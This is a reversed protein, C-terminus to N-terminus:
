PNRNTQRAPSFYSTCVGPMQRTKVMFSLESLGHFDIGVLYDTRACNESEHDPHREGGRRQLDRPFERDDNGILIRLTNLRPECVGGGLEGIVDFLRRAHFQGDPRSRLRFADWPRNEDARRKRDLRSEGNRRAVPLRHFVDNRLLAPADIKVAVVAAHM